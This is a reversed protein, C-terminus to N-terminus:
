FRLCAYFRNAPRKREDLVEGVVIDKGFVSLDHMAATCVIAADFPQRRFDVNEPGIGLDLHDSLNSPAFLHLRPMLWRSAFSPPVKLRLRTSSQDIVDKIGEIRDFIKQLESALAHGQSTPELHKLKRHFLSYGFWNELNKIHRSVASQTILLEYSASTFSHHRTCTEFVKLANLPPLKRM